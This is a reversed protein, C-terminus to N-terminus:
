AQALHADYVTNAGAGHPLYNVIEDPPMRQYLGETLCAPLLTAAPHGRNFQLSRVM